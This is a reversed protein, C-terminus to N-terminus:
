GAYKHRGIIEDQTERSLTCFRASYGGVRVMLDRHSDPDKQAEILREVSTVNGQFIHGGESIYTELVPRVFEPRAWASDIDWMMSAGGGVKHLSLNTADGIAATIGNIASGCQPALGHALPTGALRGDPTAGTELGFSVVWVFGLIITRCRRESLRQRSQPSASARRPWKFCSTVDKHTLKM